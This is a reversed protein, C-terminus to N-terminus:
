VAHIWLSIQTKTPRVHRFTLGRVSWSMKGDPFCINDGNYAYETALWQGGECTLPYRYWKDPWYYGEDCTPECDTQLIFIDM